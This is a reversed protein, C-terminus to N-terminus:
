LHLVSLDFVPVLLQVHMFVLLLRNALQVLDALELLLHHLVVRRAFAHDLDHSFSIRRLAFTAARHDITILPLVLDILLGSPHDKLDFIFLHLWSVLEVVQPNLDSLRLGGEPLASVCSELALAGEIEDHLVLAVESHAM